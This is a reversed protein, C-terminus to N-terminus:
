RIKRTEERAKARAWDRKAYDYAIRNGSELAKAMENKYYDSSYGMAEGGEAAEKQEMQEANEEQELMEEDMNELEYSM